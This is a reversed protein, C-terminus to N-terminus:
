NISKMTMEMLTFWTFMSQYINFVLRYDMAKNKIANNIVPFFAKGQHMRVIITDSSKIISLTKKQNDIIDYTVDFKKM